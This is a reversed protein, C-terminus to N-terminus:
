AFIAFIHLKQVNQGTIVGVVACTASLAAAIASSKITNIPDILRDGSDQNYNIYM